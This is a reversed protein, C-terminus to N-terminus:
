FKFGPLRLRNTALNDRLLLLARAFYSLVVNLNVVVLQFMILLSPLSREAGLLVGGAGLVPRNKM